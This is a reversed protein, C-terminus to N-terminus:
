PADFLRRQWADPPEGSGAKPAKASKRVLQSSAMASAAARGGAGDGVVVFPAWYAPHAEQPDGHDILILMARRLAEARGVKPDRAMERIAVTILKVTADSYVAWHSVLLARAQAYIFARALGSLAEANTSAGAATNCASLIVWDADLKLGAIESASLYGDDAETAQAPPTLILGPERSGDLEGAIVAHTAFHVIRYLGLEGSASLRKVEGETAQAGLRIDGASAKMDRAVACLENATEPLPVQQRLYAVDALGAWPEVRGVSGRMAARALLPRERAEPCRQKEAALKALAPDSGELLPNGFGIMSRPAASPKGIRRLAKLSSVAPLITVAHTRALWATSRHEGAASPDTVLVQFPLQTLPGSPVILLHKGNILDEVEGFLTAYLRHARAVDFPLPQDAAPLQALPIALADACRETGVGYWATADLGCRLAAVERALGATGLDSRVSRVASKTVVWVFTEEPRGKGSKEKATDLFLVLAEENGLLTQVEAVSVPAASALAAYDAFETALRRDIGTLRADIAALRAALVREAEDQRREPPEAKSAVLLKDKAQWEAVLDQRERVVQALQPSGKASRAAMQTLSAAAASGQVWQAAEFTEAAVREAPGFATARHSVRVLGLFPRASRRAEGAMTEGRGGALGREARRKIIDASRRWYDAATAWDGQLYALDALNNLAKGVDLHEPGLATEFIGLSRKFLPEAEAYRGQDKYLRALNHLVAGLHHHEPPLRKEFIDLSRLYLREAEADRGLDHYLGAQNTLAAAVERHDSGFVKERLSVSREFLPEAEATRGQAVYIQALSDLAISVGADDPNDRQAEIERIALSRRFLPEAEGYRGQASYLKALSDLAAAVNNDQRGRTKEIIDLSRRLLPEAEAYRDQAWYLQALDNLALAVDNRDPGRVSMAEIQVLRQALVTAEAYRGADRLRLMEPRLGARKARIAQARTAFGDAEATRGDARYLRALQDLIPALDPHEPGLVKDRIALIRSFLRQAEDHRQQMEYLGALYNLAGSLELDDGGRATELIAVMRKRQVEAEGYRHEVEYIRALNDLAPALDPHESGLRAESIALSRLALSELEIFTGQQLFLEILKNFTQAWNPELKALGAQHVDLLREVVAIAEATNGANLLKEVAVTAAIADAPQHGPANDRIELSRKFLPIAEARRGQRQYVRALDSLAAGVEAHDAGLAAERIALVRKYLLEAGAPGRLEQERALGQLATAVQLPDPGFSKEKIAIFRNFVLEAEAGRGQAWYLSALKYLTAGVDAHDLGLAKERIALARRYLPEARSAPGLVALSDLTVALDLHDLGLAKERIALVREYAQIAEDERHGVRYLTALKNLTTAVEPHDPGLAKELVALARQYFPEAEADRKQQIRVGALANLVKAVSAHDPDAKELIALARQYFPEAEATQGQVDHLVGLGYHLKALSVDDPPFRQEGLALAQEAIPMAERYKRATFLQSAQEHLADIEADSQASAPASPMAAVMVLSSLCVAFVFGMARMEADGRAKLRVLFALKLAACPPPM